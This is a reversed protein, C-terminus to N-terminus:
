FSETYSQEDDTLGTIKFFRSCKWFFIMEALGQIFLVAVRDLSIKTLNFVSVSVFAMDSNM